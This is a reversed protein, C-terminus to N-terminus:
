VSNSGTVLAECYASAASYKCGNSFCFRATMGNSSFKSGVGRVIGEHKEKIVIWDSYEVCEHVGLDVAEYM